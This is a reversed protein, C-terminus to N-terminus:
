QEADPSPADAAAGLFFNRGNAFRVSVGNAAHTGRKSQYGQVVIESGVPFDTKRLGKRILVKPSGAEVSWNVITGDPQKVDLYIWGHPNTWEMKTLTGKLTIPKNIDFEASFSHHAPASLPSLLLFAAALLLQRMNM